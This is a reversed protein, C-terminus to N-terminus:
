AVFDHLLHSSSSFRHQQSGPDMCDFDAPDSSAAAAAPNYMDSPGRMSMSMSMGVFSHHGGGGGMPISIPIPLSGGGGGGGECHQLGLTLSVGSSGSRSGFTGLESMHYAMFRDSSGGDSQVIGDPFLSSSSSCEEMTPRQEMNGTLKVIGYETQTDDHAVAAGNGNGNGFSARGRRAGGMGMEVDRASIIISKSDLFRGTTTSTTSQQFDDGREESVRRTRADNDDDDDDDDDKTVKPAANESSSNSEDMDADGIEEKYM